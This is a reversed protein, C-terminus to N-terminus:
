IKSTEKSVGNLQDSLQVLAFLKMIELAFEVKFRTTCSIAKKEVIIRCCVHFYCSIETGPTTYLVRM